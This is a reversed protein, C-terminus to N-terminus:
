MALVNLEPKQKPFIIKKQTGKGNFNLILRVESSDSTLLLRGSREPLLGTRCFWLVVQAYNSILSSVMNKNM